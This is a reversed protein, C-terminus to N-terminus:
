DVTLGSDEGNTNSDSLDPAMQCLAMWDETTHCRSTEEFQPELEDASTQQQGEGQQVAEVLRIRGALGSSLQSGWDKWASAPNGDFDATLDKVARFCAMLLNCWSGTKVSEM